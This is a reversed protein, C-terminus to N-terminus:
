ASRWDLINLNAFEGFHLLAAANYALAADEENCFLGLYLSTGLCKICAQWKGTRRHLTVGRFRSSAGAARVKRNAQNESNTAVRINSRKNNLGNGDRHDVMASYSNLILSHMGVKRMTVIGENKTRFNRVAYFVVTGDKRPSRRLQWKFQSVLDFDEDDIIAFAGQTLPIEIVM